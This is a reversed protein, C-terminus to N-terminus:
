PWLMDLPPDVVVQLAFRAVIQLLGRLSVGLRQADLRLPQRDAVLRAAPARAGRCPRQRERPPQDKRRRIHQVIEGGVLDRMEDLHIMRRPEPPDDGFGATMDLAGLAPEIGVAVVQMAVTDLVLPFRDGHTILGAYGRVATIGNATM